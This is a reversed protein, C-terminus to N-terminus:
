TPSPLAPILCPQLKRLKGHNPELARRRPAPTRPLILSSPSLNATGCGHRARPSEAQLKSRSARAVPGRVDLPGKAPRHRTLVQATLAPLLRPGPGLSTQRSPLPTSTYWGESPVCPSRSRTHCLRERAAELEGAAGQALITCGHNLPSRSSSTAARAARKQLICPPSISFM